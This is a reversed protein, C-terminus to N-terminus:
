FRMPRGGGGFGHGGRPGGGPGRRNPSKGGLTNFRYVFHVMFYSGLTNYETDSMMTERIFCLLSSKSSCHSSYIAPNIQSLTDELTATADIKIPIIQPSM